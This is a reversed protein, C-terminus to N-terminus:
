SKLQRGAVADDLPCQATSYLKDVILTDSLNVSRQLCIPGIASSGFEKSSILNFNNHSERQFKEEVCCTASTPVAM